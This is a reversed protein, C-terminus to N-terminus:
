ISTANPEKNFSLNYWCNTLYTFILRKKKSGGGEVKEM